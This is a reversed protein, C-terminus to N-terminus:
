EEEVALSGSYSGADEWALSRGLRLACEAPFSTASVRPKVADQGLFMIPIQGLSARGTDGEVDQVRLRGDAKDGHSTQERVMELIQFKGTGLPLKRGKVKPELCQFGGHPLIRKPAIVKPGINLIARTDQGVTDFLQNQLTQLQAGGQITLGQLGAEELSLHM